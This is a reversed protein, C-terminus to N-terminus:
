NFHSPPKRNIVFHYDEQWDNRKWGEILSPVVNKRANMFTDSSIAIYCGPMDYSIDQLRQSFIDTTKAAGRGAVLGLNKPQLMLITQALWNAYRLEVDIENKPLARKRAMSIWYNAPNLAQM